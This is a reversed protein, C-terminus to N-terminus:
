LKKYKKQNKKSLHVSGYSSPTGWINDKFWKNNKIWWVKDSRFTDAIQWFERETMNVYSLWHYLDKSVIHDYKRVMNIGKKRNMYGTRIDKSAHDSCRGYGFKIFKM